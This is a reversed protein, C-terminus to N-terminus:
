LAQIPTQKHGLVMQPIYHNYLQQYHYITSDADVGNDFHTTRVSENIRGNFREVLENTQPWRLPTLRHELGFRECPADFDHGGSPQRDNQPFRERFAVNTDMLLTHIVFSVWQRFRELFALTAARSNEQHWEPYV